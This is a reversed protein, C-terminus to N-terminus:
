PNASTDLVCQGDIQTPVPLPRSRVGVRATRNKVDTYHYLQREGRETMPIGSLGIAELNTDGQYGIIPLGAHVMRFDLNSSGIWMLDAPIYPNGSSAANPIKADPLNVEEGAPVDYVQPYSWVQLNYDGATIVGHFKAGEANAVPPQIDMRNVRRLNAMEEFNPSNLMNRLANKGCLVINSEIKGDKRNLDCCDEIDQLPVANTTGFAATADVFHSAKMKYDILGGNVLPVTGTFMVNASMVEKAREIKYWLRAQDDTIKAVLKPLNSNVLEYPSEGVMRKLLDWAFYDIYEDFAPPKFEKTTWTSANNNHGGTGPVVDIAIKENDREVDIIVEDTLVNYRDATRFFSALFLTPEAKQRFAELFTKKIIEVTM